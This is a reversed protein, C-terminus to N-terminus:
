KIYKKIINKLEEIDENQRKVKEDLEQIAKTQVFLTKYLDVANKDNNLFDEDSDDAIIGIKNKVGNIKDFTVIDLSNVKDLAIKDYPEINEKLKRLSSEFYGSATVNGRFEWDNNNISNRATWSDTGSNRRFLVTFDSGAGTSNTPTNDGDYQIGGGTSTSQGVYVRGSGQVDGYLRMESRGDDNSRIDIISNTGNDFTKIGSISQNGSTRVVSTDVSFTTGSLSIGSGGSYTTSTNTDTSSITISSGSRSISTAGSGIFQVDDGSNIRTVTGSNVGLDWGDYTSAPEPTVSSITVTGNASYSLNVNTGGVLNLDNGSGITKRQTGDTKLNWSSYNDYPPVVWNGDGRLYQTTSGNANPIGSLGVDDKTTAQARLNPYTGTIDAKDNPNFNFENWIKTWESAEQNYLNRTWLENDQRHTHIIQFMRTDSIKFNAITGFSTPYTTDAVSEGVNSFSIGEFWLNSDDIDGDPIGVQQFNIDRYIHTHNPIATLYGALAHDGWSYAEDWNSINLSSSNDTKYSINGNIDTVLLRDLSENNAIGSIKLSNTNIKGIVNLEDNIFDWNLKTADESIIGDNNTYLVSGQENSKIQKIKIHPM